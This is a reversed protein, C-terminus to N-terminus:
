PEESVENLAQLYQAESMPLYHWLIQGIMYSVGKGFTTHAILVHPPGSQTDFSAVAAAIAEVNHGEVEVTDWGFARWRAAIPSISLVADTYGLAQQGNADVIAVFNSLRHHALCSLRGSRARMVSQM